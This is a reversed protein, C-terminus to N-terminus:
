KMTDGGLPRQDDGLILVPGGAFSIGKNHLGDIYQVKTCM